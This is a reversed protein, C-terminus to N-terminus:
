KLQWTFCSRRKKLLKQTCLNYYFNKCLQLKSKLTIIIMYLNSNTSPKSNFFGSKHLDCPRCKVGMILPEFELHTFIPKFTKKLISESLSMLSSFLPVILLITHLLLTKERINWYTNKVIYIYHITCRCGICGQIYITFIVFLFIKNICYIRSSILPNQCEGQVFKLKGKQMQELCCIIWLYIDYLHKDFCTQYQQVYM